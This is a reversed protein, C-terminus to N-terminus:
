ELSTPWDMRLKFSRYEQFIFNENPIIWSVSDFLINWPTLLSNLDDIIRKAESPSRELESITLHPIFGSTFPMDLRFLNLDHLSDRIQLIQQKPNVDLWILKKNPSSRM